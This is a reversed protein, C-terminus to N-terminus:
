SSEQVTISVLNGSNTMSYIAGKHVISAGALGGGGLKSRGVIQGDAKSLVHVYGAFDSVIVYKGLATPGSLSRYLLDAQEWVVEGTLRDLAVVKGQEESIYINNNDASIHTYSSVDKSWLISRSGLALATVSGQFAAVYLVSGMLLPTSDIDIMREVENRGRPQAISIDWIIGGTALDAAVLKGNAFGVVVARRDVVLPASNGRLTLTPIERHFVWRQEGDNSSLGYVHGDITRVVAIGGYATPPALIESSLTQQWLEDGTEMNLGKVQGEPTGVLVIDGGVGVAGSIPIDLKVRWKRKGDAADIASVDGNPSAAFLIDGQIGPALNYFSSVPSGGGVNYTWNRRVTVRQDIEQLASPKPKEIREKGSLRELTSCSSVVLSSLLPLLILLRNM